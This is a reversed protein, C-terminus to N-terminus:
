KLNYVSRHIVGNAHLYELGLLIQKTYSIVTGFSFPGFKKLMHAVSGGIFLYGM